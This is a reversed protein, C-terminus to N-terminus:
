TYIYTQLQIGQRSLCDQSCLELLCHQAFLIVGYTSCGVVKGVVCCHKYQDSNEFKEGPPTPSSHKYKSVKVIEPVITHLTKTIIQFSYMDDQRMINAGMYTFISMVHHLVVDQWLLCVLILLYYLLLYRIRQYLLSLHLSSSLPPACMLTIVPYIKATTKLVLLAQQHTQPNKSTRICQVISEM